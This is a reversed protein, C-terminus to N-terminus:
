KQPKEPRQGRPGQKQQKQYKQYQESSLIKQLKKNYEQRKAQHTKMQKKQADTMQPLEPRQQKDDSKKANGDPRPGGPGGMGPGGIYDKYEKNLSLVKAKQDATLSLDKTMRSTMEEATMQKPARREKDNGQAMATTMTLLAVTMLIIKKMSSSKNFKFVVIYRKKHRKRVERRGSPLKLWLKQIVICLYAYM